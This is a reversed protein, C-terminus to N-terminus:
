VDRVGARARRHPRRPAAYRHPPPLTKDGTLILYPRYGPRSEAGGSRPRPPAALILPALAAASIATPAPRLLLHDPLSSRLFVSQVAPGPSWVPIASWDCALDASCSEAALVWAEAARRSTIIAAEWAGAGRAIIGELESPLLTEGLAPISAASYGAEALASVYTDGPAPTRFLIVRM